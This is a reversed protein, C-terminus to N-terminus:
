VFNNNNDRYLIKDCWAPIIRKFAIMGLVLLVKPLYVFSYDMVYICYLAGWM